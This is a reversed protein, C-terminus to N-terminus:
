IEGFNKNGILGLTRAPPLPNLRSHLRPRERLPQHQQEVGVAHTDVRGPLNLSAAILGQGKPLQAAVFQRAESLDALEAKAVKFTNLIQKNLDQTQDLLHPHHAEAMHREIAGLHLGTSTLVIRHNVLQHNSRLLLQLL